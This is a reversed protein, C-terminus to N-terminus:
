LAGALIERAVYVSAAPTLHGYDVVFLEGSGPVVAMCGGDNCLKSIPSVLTIGSAGLGAARLANDTDATEPNLGEAVM